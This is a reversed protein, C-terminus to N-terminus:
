IACSVNNGGNNRIEMMKDFALEILRDSDVSQDPYISIGISTNFHFEQGGLLNSIDINYIARRIKEGLTRAEEIKTDSLIVVFEDGRYRVGTDKDQLNAKITNALALLAGDGAAHGFSDNIIKFNDPKIFLIATNNGSQPLLSAFEDSLYTRNFLGTLKDYLLQNRLEEIWETKETVLKNTERIRHATIAILEHLINAFIAPYKKIIDEFKRGKGPFVLLTTDDAAVASANRPADEFLDMEGFLEGEIFEAIDSENNDGTKKIIRVGGSKVIFLSHGKSGEKFIIDNNKFFSFNSFKALVTLEQDNLRSFLQSNKLLNNKNKM